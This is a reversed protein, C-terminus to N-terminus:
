FFIILYKKLIKGSHYRNLDPDEKNNKNRRKQRSQVDQDNTLKDKPKIKAEYNSAIVLHSFYIFYKYHQMLKKNINIKCEKLDNLYPALLKSKKKEYGKQTIDGELLELELQDLEFRVNTPLKDLRINLENTNNAGVVVGGSSCAVGDNSSLSSTAGSTTSSSTSTSSSINSILGLNTVHHGGHHNHHNLNEINM